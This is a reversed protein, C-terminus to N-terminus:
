NLNNNISELPTRILDDSIEDKKLHKNSTDSKPIEEHEFSKNKRERGRASRTNRTVVSSAGKTIRGRAM